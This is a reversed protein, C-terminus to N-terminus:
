KAKKKMLTRIEAQVEAGVALSVGDASGAVSVTAAVEECIGKAVMPMTGVKAGTAPVTM